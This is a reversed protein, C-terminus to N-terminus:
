ERDFLDTAEEATVGGEGVYGLDDLLANIRAGEALGDDLQFEFRPLYKLTVMQGVRDRIDQYNRSFFRRAQTVAEADGVVSYRVTAKRLNPTTDVTVVTVGVTEAQYRTHLVLSIERKLLENVRTTRAM